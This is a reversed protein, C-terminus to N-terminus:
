VEMKSADSDYFKKFASKSMPKAYYYGQIIDCGMKKLSIIDEKNELGEATTQINLDKSLRIVSSVVAMSRERDEAKYFFSRDLKLVDVSTNKLLGLSSYGSGFDDMLVKFGHDQLEKMISILQKVNDLMSSETIEVGFYEASVKQESCISVLRSVFEKSLLHNRSFNVSLMFPERGSDIWERMYRCGQEFMYMDLKVIFGNKEFIPIFEDPRMPGDPSQWRVLAEAAILSCSKLCLEPQLVMVFEDNLLAEEMRNEIQKTKVAGSLIEDTYISLESHTAKARRHAINAKEIADSIDFVTNKDIYYYGAIVRLRYGFDVGLNGYLREVFNDRWNKVENDDNYAIMLLFEDDHLHAGLCNKEVDCEMSAAMAILVRDGVANGLSENVLRFNEIDFKVLLFKGNTKKKIFGPASLKFKTMTNIGTLESTYAIESIKDLATQQSQNIIIGFAAVILIIIVSIMATFDVMNNATSLAITESVISLIMWDNINIAEYTFRYPENRFEITQRGETVAAIDSMLKIYEDSSQNVGHGISEFLNEFPMLNSELLANAVINGESDVILKATVADYNEGFMSNLSDIYIFGALVGVVEGDIFMPTAIVITEENDFASVIPDSIVTNGRMAQQFYERDPISVESSDSGVANGETDIVMMFDFSNSLEQHDEDTFDIYRLYDSSLPLLAATTELLELGSSFTLNFTNVANDMQQELRDDTLTSVSNVIYMNYFLIAVVLVSIAIIVTIIMNIHKKTQQYFNM